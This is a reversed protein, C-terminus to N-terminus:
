SSINSTRGEPPPAVLMAAEISKVEDNSFGRFAVTRHPRVLSLAYLENYAEHVEPTAALNELARGVAEPYHGKARAVLEAVRVDAEADVKAVKVRGYEEIEAKARELRASVADFVQRAVDPLLNVNKLRVVDVSLGWRGIEPAIAESVLSGLEAKDHLIDHFDRSGLTSTVAQAVIARLASQWDVVAFKAKAPDVIRYEVWLDVVLTTGRSDNVHLEDFELFDRRLSVAGVGVWPLIKDVVVHLGPTRLVTVLKGWRTLLRAEGDEVEVTFARFALGLIPFFLSGIGFGLLWDWGTNM